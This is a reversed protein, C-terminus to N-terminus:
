EGRFSVKLAQGGFIKAAFINAYVACWLCSRDKTKAHAIWEILLTALCDQPGHV